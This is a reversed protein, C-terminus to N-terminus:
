NTKLKLCYNRADINGIKTFPLFLSRFVKELWKQFEEDTNSHEKFFNPHILTLGCSDAFENIVIRVNKWIINGNGNVGVGIVDGSVGSIEIAKIKRLREKLEELKQNVMGSQEIMLNRVDNLTNEKATVDQLNMIDLIITDLKTCMNNYHEQGERQFEDLFVRIKELKEEDSGKSTNYINNAITDFPHPLISIIIKVARDGLPHKDQFGQVKKNVAEDVSEEFKAIKEKFESWSPFIM